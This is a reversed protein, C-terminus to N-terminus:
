ETFGSLALTKLDTGVAQYVETNDSVTLVLRPFARRRSFGRNYRCTAFRCVRPDTFGKEEPTTPEVGVRGVM